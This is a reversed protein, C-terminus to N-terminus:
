CLSLSIGFLYILLKGVQMPGQTGRMLGATFVAELAWALLHTGAPLVCTLVYGDPASSVSPEEQATPPSPPQLPSGEATHAGGGREWGSGPSATGQLM